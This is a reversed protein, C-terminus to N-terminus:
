NAKEATWGDEEPYRETLLNAQEAPIVRVTWPYLTRDRVDDMAYQAAEERSSATVGLDIVCLYEQEESM